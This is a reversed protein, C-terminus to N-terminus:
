PQATATDGAENDYLLAWWDMVDLQDEFLSRISVQLDLSLDNKQPEESSLDDYLYGETTLLSWPANEGTKAFSLGVSEHIPYWGSNDSFRVTFSVEFLGAEAAEPSSPYFHPDEFLRLEPPLDESGMDYGASDLFEGLVVMISDHFSEFSAIVEHPARVYEIDPEPEPEGECAALGFMVAALFCRLTKM